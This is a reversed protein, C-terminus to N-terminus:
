FRFGISFGIANGVGSGGAFAYQNAPTIVTPRVNMALDDTVEFDQMYAFVNADIVQLLYFAALALTSYDRMRRYANRYYLATQASIPGEYTIETNTAENYIERFRKYNRSNDDYFHYAGLLCSWYVPVKWYEGNYIQGLGPFLIAYVTAKGPNHKYDPMFNVAGDLLTGWYVLGGAALLGTSWAKDSASGTNKFKNNFYLGGGITGALGTYIVPLKWYQRNYIQGGGITFTSGMFLTTMDLEGKHGLGRIYDKLSFLSSTDAPASNDADNGYSQKFAEERFQAHAADPFATLAAIAVFIYLLLRKM